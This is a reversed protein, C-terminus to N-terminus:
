TKYDSWEIPCLIQNSKRGRLIVRAAFDKPSQEQEPFGIVRIKQPKRELIAEKGLGMNEFYEPVNFNFGIEQTEQKGYSPIRAQQYLIIEQLEESNVLLKQGSLFKQTVEQLSEYFEKKNETIDLFSAEEQEWYINGFKPIVRCRSKEALVSEASQNFNNIQERLISGRELTKSREVVYELFNTQQIKHSNALYDMVYFGAKLGHFLQMTSSFVTAKKWDDESMANTSIIIEEYEATEELSRVTGHIENIPIHVTKIGFKKQYEKEALETNPYVQCPYIFLQTQVRSKLIEELGDVFSRYTEGPLGLILETYTPIGTQAYRKQLERFTEIKINRRGINALAEPNNSQRSLTIGKEMNHIHLLSGIEFVTDEANKAYCVRFKEPYGEHKKKSDVFSKAIELDRKFM